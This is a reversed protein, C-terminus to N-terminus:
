GAVFDFDDTAVEEATDAGEFLWGRESAAGGSATGEVAEDHGAAVADLPDDVVGGGGCAADGGGLVVFAEVFEGM